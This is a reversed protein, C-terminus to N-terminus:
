CTTVKSPVKGEDPEILRLLIRALTTKGCGSEGVIAFTEGPAVEFSVDDVAAFREVKTQDSFLGGGRIYTKRLKRVELLYSM